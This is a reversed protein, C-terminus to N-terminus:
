TTKINKITIKRIIGIRRRRRRRRRRGRRKRRKRRKKRGRRAIIMKIQVSIITITMM